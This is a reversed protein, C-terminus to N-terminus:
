PPAGTLESEIDSLLPMRPYLPRRPAPGRCRDVFMWENMAREYEGMRAAYDAELTAAREAQVRAAVETRYSVALSAKNTQEM